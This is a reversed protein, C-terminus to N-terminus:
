EEKPVVPAAVVRATRDLGVIVVEAGKEGWGLGTLEAGNDEVLSLTEWSKNQVIRLDTGVIALFQASDDWRLANVVNDAPLDISHFNTLKRLDWLKVQASGAVAAALVYGNQSFDLATIAGVNPLTSYESFTAVCAGTLIDYIRVFADSSGVAVMAGDPHFAIATNATDPAADAPLSITLISVPKAASLDIISFTGDACASAVLSGSPHLALANVEAPNTLTASVAYTTKNGNPAFVKVSKDLSASIIHAPLNDDNLASSFLVSTVKKSHGKLNAIIKSSTRDYVQM